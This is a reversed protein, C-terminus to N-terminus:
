FRPLYPDEIPRVYFRSHDWEERGRVLVDNLSDAVIYGRQVPDIAIFSNGAVGELQGQRKLRRLVREGRRMIEARTIHPIPGSIVSSCYFDNNGWKERGTKMANGLTEVIVYDGSDPEIAIYRNDPVGELEGSEKLIQLIDDGKFLIRDRKPPLCDFM